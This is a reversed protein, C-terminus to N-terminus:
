RAWVTDADSLDELVMDPQHAALEAASFRGTAVAVAKARDGARLAHGEAHRRDRHVGAPPVGRAAGPSAPSSTRCHHDDGFAGGEGFHHDIGYARLKAFAAARINGTLLALEFGGCEGLLDLLEAAGALRRGPAIADAFLRAELCALYRAYFDGVRAQASAGFALSAFLDRLLGSDTAGALDLPPIPRGALDAAYIEAFAECLAAYGAGGTDVLTGDIDFLLLARPM